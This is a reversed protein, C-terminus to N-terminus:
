ESLANEIERALRRIIYHQVTLSDNLTRVADQLDEPKWGVLKVTVTLRGDTRPTSQLRITDRANM